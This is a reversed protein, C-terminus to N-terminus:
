TLFPCSVQYGLWQATNTNPNFTTLLGAGIVIIVSGVLQFPAYYGIKSIAIGSAIISVVAGLFFPLLRIGADAASIGKIAQFWIPLYFAVVLFAGGTGITAVTAAVISRQLFIRPPVTGDEKVWAQVTVFCLVLVAGVVLLTIIRGDSWPYVTGGWQLALLLCILGPIAFLNGVPDFRWLKQMFTGEAKDPPRYDPLILM